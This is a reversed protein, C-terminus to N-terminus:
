FSLSLSALAGGPAPAVDLRASPEAFGAYRGPDDGAIWLWTAAVAAAAATGGAVYSWTQRTEIRSRLSAAQARLDVGAEVQVGDQLRRRDYLFTGPTSESGYLQAASMQLAVAAAVGAAAVGTSIWAGTRIKRQRSEYARVFDPSPVLPAREEVVKGAEIQVDKQFAVFGQKEVALAHPGAPLVLPARLPTTGKVQDDVKVVAGAEASTLVLRGVRGALVKQVLRQAARGIRAVLEAESRATEIASGERQGKKVATLTLDVTFTEPVGGQPALRTVKGSVLWDVGLAGGLEAMCGADTCGLMQRQKEFALMSRIAESTVVHFAGLRDLENAAVGGAASALEKSAGNATFDLVALRPKAQAAAAAPLLACAIAALLRM